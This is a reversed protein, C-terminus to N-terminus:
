KNWLPLGRALSLFEIPNLKFSKESYNSERFRVPYTVTVSKVSIANRPNCTSKFM